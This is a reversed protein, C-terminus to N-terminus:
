PPPGGEAPQYEHAVVHEEYHEEALQEAGEQETAGPIRRPLSLFIIPGLVPAVAAIGCVLGIPYNRFIAIEFAAYLNALYLAFFLTISLPSRFLAGLGARPDPRELRPVPKLTIEPAAKRTSTEEEVAELLPEVYQKAKPNQALQKLANPAFNTW